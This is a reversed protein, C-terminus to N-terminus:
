IRKSGKEMNCRSHTAQILRDDRRSGNMGRPQRHDPVVDDMDSFHKQCIACLGAQMEVRKFLTRRTVAPSYKYRWGDGFDSNPDAIRRVGPAVQEWKSSKRVMDLKERNCCDRRRHIPCLEGNRLKPM